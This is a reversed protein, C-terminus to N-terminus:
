LNQVCKSRAKCKKENSLIFKVAIFRMQWFITMSLSNQMQKILLIGYMSIAISPVMLM